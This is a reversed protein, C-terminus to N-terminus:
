TVSISITNIGCVSLLVQELEAWVNGAASKRGKVVYDLQCLRSLLAAWYGHPHRRLAANVCNVRSRWVQHRRFIDAQSEGSALAASVAELTRVERALAWVLLVSETGERRLVSLIRLARIEDGSLATDVLNYVSFRAQDQTLEDLRKEDLTAGTGLVLALKSIEQAAAMLNGEAYYALRQVAGATGVIEQSNLRQEIWRPLQDRTLARAEIALGGKEM